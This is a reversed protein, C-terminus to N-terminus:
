RPTSHLNKAATDKERQTLTELPAIRHSRFARDRVNRRGLARPSLVFRFRGSGPRVTIASLHPCDGFFIIARHVANKGRIAAFYGRQLRSGLRTISSKLAWVGPASIM